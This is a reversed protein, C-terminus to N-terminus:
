LYRHNKEGFFAFFFGDRGGRTTKGREPRCMFPAYFYLFFFFSWGAGVCRLGFKPLKGLDPYFDLFSHGIKPLKRAVASTM